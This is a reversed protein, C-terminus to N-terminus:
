SRPQAASAASVAATPADAPESPRTVSKPASPKCLPLDPAGKASDDAGGGGATRGTGGQVTKFTSSHGVSVLRESAGESRPGTKEAPKSKEPKAASRAAAKHSKKRSPKRSTSPQGGQASTPDAETQLPVGPAVGSTPGADTTRGETRSKADWHLSPPKPGDAEPKKSSEEKKRWCCLLLSAAVAVATTAPWLWGGAVSTTGMWGPGVLM